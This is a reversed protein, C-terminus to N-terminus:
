FLALSLVDDVVPNSSILSAPLPLQHFPTCSDLPVEVSVNFVPQEIASLPPLLPPIAKEEVSLGRGALMRDASM